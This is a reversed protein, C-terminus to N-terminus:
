EDPKEVYAVAIGEFRSQQDIHLVGMKTLILIALFSLVVRERSDSADFIEVFLMTGRQRVLARIEQMVQQLSLYVSRERQAAAPKRAAIREVIRSLADLLADSVEEGSQEEAPPRPVRVNPKRFSARGSNVEQLVDIIPRAYLDADELARIGEQLSREQASAHGFLVFESKLKLLDALMYLLEAHEEVGTDRRVTMTCFDVLREVVVEAVDAHGARGLLRLNNVSDALSPM